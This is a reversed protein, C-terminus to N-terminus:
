RLAEQIAIGKHSFRCRSSHINVSRERHLHPTRRARLEPHLKFDRHRAAVANFHLRFSAVDFSLIDPADRDKGSLAAVNTGSADACVQKVIGSEVIGSRSMEHGLQISSASVNLKGIDGAIQICKSGAPVYIGCVDGAVGEKVAATAMNAGPLNSAPGAQFGIAPVDGDPAGRTEHAHAGTATLDIE